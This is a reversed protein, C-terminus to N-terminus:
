HNALINALWPLSTYQALSELPVYVSAFKGIGQFAFGIFSALTIIAMLAYSTRALRGGTDNGFRNEMWEAATIVNSRRVWKGMYSMFFAAMFFGWMWHHWMSKMGLVFIISVIWMTGTIDFMAVSGSMALAIWHLSKGGLFYSDLDKSARKSIWFGILVTLMLYTFIIAIDISHLDM